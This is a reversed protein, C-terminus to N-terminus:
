IKTLIECDNKKILVTHEFHASLSGDKTKATWKNKDIVTDASGVCVMPEIAITMGEKLIVGEGKNGFNPVEPEEHIERGIGHGVFTKVVSFGQDEIYTQIAHSLDGIRVGDKCVLIGLELAEKSVKLLKKATDSVEGVPLTIASDGHFNKYKIGCDFSVIDGEKLFRENSPVGHVIEDNISVCLVGPFGHYNLFSAKADNFNNLIYEYALDNLEKTTMGIKINSSLYALTQATYSGAVRM